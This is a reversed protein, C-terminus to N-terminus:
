LGLRLTVRVLGLLNLTLTPPPQVALVKLVSRAMSAEGDINPHLPFAISTPVLGEFWKQPPLKCVDHGISDTYTDVYEAGNALATTRLMTNIRVMLGNFYALDDPSIPVVPWCGSGDVPVVAPYGVILIRAHPARARIATIVAAMKPGTQDIRAQATDQGNVTYFDRCKSGTPSNYDLEGCQIGVGVLGADNGGLGVTVLNTDATVATIEPPNIGGPSVDQSDFVKSTTSGQCSIDTFAQVGLARAVDSPYNNTSRVCGPPQGTWLPVLPASTYSDGLAAYPSFPSAASAGAPAGILVAVAGLVGLLPKM